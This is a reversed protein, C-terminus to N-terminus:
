EASKKEHKIETRKVFWIIVIGTIVGLIIFVYKLSASQKSCDSYCNDANENQECIKNGCIEKIPLKKEFLLEENHYIQIANAESYYPLRFYLNIKDLIMETMENETQEEETATFELDFNTKFVENKEESLLTIHYNGEDNAETDPIGSIIKLENLVISNNRYLDLDIVIVEQFASVKVSLLILSFLIIIYVKNM